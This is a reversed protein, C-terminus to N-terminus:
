KNSTDIGFAQSIFAQTNITTQGNQGQQLLFANLELPTQGNASTLQNLLLSSPNLTGGELHHTL